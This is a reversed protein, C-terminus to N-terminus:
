FLYNANLVKRANQLIIMKLTILKEHLLGFIM